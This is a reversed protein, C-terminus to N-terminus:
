RSVLKTRLCIPRPMKRSKWLTGISAGLYELTLPQEQWGDAHATALLVRFAQLENLSEAHRSRGSIVDAVKGHVGAKSRSVPERIRRLQNLCVPETSDQCPDFTLRSRSPGETLAQM